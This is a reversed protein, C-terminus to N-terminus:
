KERAADITEIFQQAQFLHGAYALTGDPGFVLHYPYGTVQYDRRLIRRQDTDLLVHEATFPLKAVYDAWAKENDDISAFLFTVDDALEPLLTPYLDRFQSKCPACWTAWLDVVIVKGAHRELVANFLGSTYGPLDVITQNAAPAAMPTSAVALAPALAAPLAAFPTQNGFEQVTAVITSDDTLQLYNALVITQVYERTLGEPLTALLSDRLLYSAVTGKRRPVQRVLPELRKQEDGVYYLYDDAYVPLERLVRPADAFETALLLSDKEPGPPIMYALAIADHRYMYRVKQEAWALLYKDTIGQAAAISDVRAALQREAVPIAALYAEVDVGPELSPMRPWANYDLVGRMFNISRQTFSGAAAALVPQGDENIIELEVKEGPRALFPMYHEGIVVRFERIVNDVVAVQFTGALDVEARAGESAIKDWPLYMLQVFDGDTLLGPDAVTGIVTIPRLPTRPGYEQAFGPCSYLLALLWFFRLM